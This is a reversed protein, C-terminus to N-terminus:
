GPPLPSRSVVWQDQSATPSWTERTLFWRAWDQWGMADYDPVWWERLRIRSREAGPPVEPPLEAALVIVVDADPLPGDSAIPRFSVGDLGHLYWVWPWAGGGAQDVVITDVLGAEHARRIRAAVPPVDVSTQVTVLLERPDAGHLVAPRVAVVSTAVAAVAGVVVLAVRARTRGRCRQWVAEAGVGALLVAPVLPHVALWAFKEGAWAYLAAQAAAMWAFWAGVLSRRAVTVALGAAAVSLLLWEYAADLVFYFFWPQGGRGVDHQSWWYRLGDVLGSAFGEPYRFGSTFVVAFVVLFAMVAQLYPEAGLAVLRRAAAASSGDPRVVAVVGGIVLFWLAAFGFLFTTEKVAFSCALLAGITVLHARRPAVLLRAVVLLLAVSLLVVLSDERGTRTVTLITPSIVFLAAAVPAGVRGLTRTSAAVVATAAVGALAAVARAEAAGTGLLRMALGNLYFRLPGHYVPDYEAVSLDRVNWSFWADISEDHALPRRGLEWVHAVLSVVTLIGVWTWRRTWWPVSGAPTAREDTLTRTPEDIRSATGATSM